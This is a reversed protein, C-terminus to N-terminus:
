LKYHTHFFFLFLCAGLAVQKPTNLHRFVYQVAHLGHAPQLIERDALEPQALIGEKDPPQRDHFQAGGDGIVVHPQKRVLKEVGNRLGATFDHLAFEVFEEGHVHNLATRAGGGVHVGVLHDGVTRQLDHPVGAAFVLVARGVVMDVARLRGVVGVRRRDVESKIGRVEFQAFVEHLQDGGKGALAFLEGVHELHAARLQLVGHRHGEALSEVAKRADQLAFDLIEVM